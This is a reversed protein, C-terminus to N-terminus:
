LINKIDTLIDELRQLREELNQDPTQKPNEVYLLTGIQLSKDEAPTRGNWERLEQVTVNFRTAIKYLTDGAVVRYTKAM